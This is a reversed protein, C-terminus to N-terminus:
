RAPKIPEDTACRGCSTPNHCIGPHDRTAFGKTPRELLKGQQNRQDLTRLPPFTEDGHLHGVLRPPRVKEGSLRQARGAKVSSRRRHNSTRTSFNCTSPSLPYRPLKCSNVSNVCVEKKNKNKPTVISLHYRWRWSQAKSGHREGPPTTTERELLYQETSLLIEQHM